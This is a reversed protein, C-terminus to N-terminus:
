ILGAEQAEAETLWVGAKDFVALTEKAQALTAQYLLTYSRQPNRQKLANYHDAASELENNTLVDLEMLKGNYSETLLAYPMSTLQKTNTM